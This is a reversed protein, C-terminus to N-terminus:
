QEVGAPTAPAAAQGIALAAMSAQNGTIAQAKAAEIVPAFQELEAKAADLQAKLSAVNPIVQIRQRFGESIAKLKAFENPLLVGLVGIGILGGGLIVFAHVPDKILGVGTVLAVLGQVTSLEGLQSFIFVLISFIVNM